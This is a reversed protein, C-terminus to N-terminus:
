PRCLGRSQPLATIEKPYSAREEISSTVRPTLTSHDRKTFAYEEISCIANTTPQLHHVGVSLATDDISSGVERAFSILGSCWVSLGKDDM